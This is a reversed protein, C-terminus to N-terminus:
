WAGGGGGGAGDGGFIHILMRDLDEFCQVVQELGAVMVSSEEAIDHIMDQGRRGLRDLADHVVAPVAGAPLVTLQRGLASLSTAAVDLNRAAHRMAETNYSGRAM